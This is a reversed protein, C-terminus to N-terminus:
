TTLALKCSPLTHVQNVHRLMTRLKKDAMQAWQEANQDTISWTEDTAKMKHIELFATEMQKQSFALNPQLRHLTQLMEKHPIIHSPVVKEKDMKEGYKIFFPKTVFAALAVALEEMSGDYRPRAASDRWATM